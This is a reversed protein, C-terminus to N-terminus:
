RMPQWDGSYFVEAHLQYADGRHILADRHLLGHPFVLARGAKAPVTRRLTPFEVGGGSFDENLFVVVSLHSHMGASCERAPDHHAETGEGAGLRVCRLLPKLGALQAGEITEPLLPAIRYFLRLALVPDDIVAFRPAEDFGILRCPSEPENRRRPVAHHPGNAPRRLDATTTLWRDDEVRAILSRCTSSDLVGDIFHIHAPEISSSRDRATM